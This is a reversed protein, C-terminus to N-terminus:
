VAPNLCTSHSSLSYSDLRLLDIEQLLLVPMSSFGFPGTVSSTSNRDAETGRRRRECVEFLVMM